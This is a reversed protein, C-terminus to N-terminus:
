PKHMDVTVVQVPTQIPRMGAVYAATGAQMGGVIVFFLGAWSAPLIDTLAGAAGVYSLGAIISQWVVLTNNSRPSGSAINATQQESM